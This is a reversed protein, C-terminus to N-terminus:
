VSEPKTGALPIISQRGCGYPESVIRTHLFSTLMALWNAGLGDGTQSILPPVNGTKELAPSPHHLRNLADIHIEGGAHQFFKILGSAVQVDATLRHDLRQHPLCEVLVLQCM